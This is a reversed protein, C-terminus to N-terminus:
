YTEVTGVHATVPHVTYQLPTRWTCHLRTSHRPVGHATVPYVTYQSWTVKRMSDPPVGPVTRLPYVLYLARTTYATLLTCPSCLALSHSLTRLPLSPSSSPTPRHPLPPCAPLISLSTPMLFLSAPLWRSCPLLPWRVASRLAAPRAALSARAMMRAFARM